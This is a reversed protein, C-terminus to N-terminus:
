QLLPKLPLGDACDGAVRSLVGVRTARLMTVAVVQLLAGITDGGLFPNLKGVDRAGKARLLKKLENVGMKELEAETYAKARLAAVQSAFLSLFPTHM